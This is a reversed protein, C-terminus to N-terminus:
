RLPKPLHSDHERQQELPMSSPPFCEARVMRGLQAGWTWKASGAHAGTGGCRSLPTAGRRGLLATSKISQELYNDLGASTRTVARIVLILCYASCVSRIGSSDQRSRFSRIAPRLCPNFSSSLQALKIPSNPCRLGCRLSACARHNAPVQQVRQVARRATHLWCLIPPVQRFLSACFFASRVATQFRLLPFIDAEM